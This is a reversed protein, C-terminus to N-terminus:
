LVMREVLDNLREVIQNIQQSTQLVHQAKDIAEETTANVGVIEHYTRLSIQEEEEASQSINANMQRIQGIATAIEQMSDIITSAEKVLGDSYTVNTRMTRTSDDLKQQLIQAMQEIQATAEQTRGSLTRVEDAVVAFGRGQEGARAAEIAANLALLNTQEAIAKIDNLIHVISESESKLGNIVEVSDNVHSSLTHIHAITREITTVGKKTNTEAIEAARCAENAHDLVRSSQASIQNVASTISEIRQKQLRNDSLSAEANDTLERDSRSLSQITLNLDDILQRLYTVMKAAALELQGIEDRHRPQIDIRLDGDAIHTLQQSIYRLPRFLRPTYWLLIAIALILITGGGILALQNARRQSEISDSFDAGILLEAVARQEIDTLTHRSVAWYRNDYSIQEFTREPSFAAFLRPNLEADTTYLPRGQRQILAHSDAETTFHQLTTRLNKLLLAGGLLQGRQTIPLAVMVMLEGTEDLGIAHLNKGETLVQNVLRNRSQGTYNDAASVLIEGQANFIRLNHLMDQAAMSAYAPEIEASIAELDVAKLGRKLQSNRTLKKTELDLQSYDHRLFNRWLLDRGYTVAEEFRKESQKQASMGAWILTAAVALTVVLTLLVIKLRLPM